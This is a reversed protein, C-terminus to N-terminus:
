LAESNNQNLNCYFTLMKLNKFFTNYKCSSTNSSTTTPGETKVSSLSSFSTFSGSGSASASTEFVTTNQNDSSLDQFKPDKPKIEKVFIVEDSKSM